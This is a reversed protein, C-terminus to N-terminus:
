NKGSSKKSEAVPDQEQKEKKVDTQKTQIAAQQPVLRGKINEPSDVIIQPKIGHVSIVLRCDMVYDYEELLIQLDKQFSLLKSKPSKWKKAM